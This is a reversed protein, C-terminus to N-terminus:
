SLPYGRLYDAMLRRARELAEERTEAPVVILRGSEAKWAMGNEVNEYRMIVFESLDRGAFLGGYSYLRPTASLPGNELFDYHIPWFPFNLKGFRIETERADEPVPIPDNEVEFLGEFTHAGFLSRRIKGDFRITVPRVEDANEAGLRIMLGQHVASYRHPIAYQWLVYAAAVAVAAILLTVATKKFSIKRQAEMRFIVGGQRRAGDAATRGCGARGTPLGAAALRGSLDGGFVQGGGFARDSGFPRDSGVTGPRRWRHGTAALRARNGGVTGPQRRSRERRCGLARFWKGSCLIGDFALLM